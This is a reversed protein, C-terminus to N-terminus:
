EEVSAKEASEETAAAATEAAAVAEEEAPAEEVIEPFEEDLRVTLFRIIKEDLRLRREFEAIVEPSATFLTQIYCGREVKKIPYALKRTGWNDLKYIEVAQDTLVKQFKEVIATLEDGVVDPHVIYLSEYNRM